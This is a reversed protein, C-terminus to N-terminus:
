VRFLELSIQRRVGEEEIVNIAAAHICRASDLLSV